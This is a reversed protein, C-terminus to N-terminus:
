RSVWITEKFIFLFCLENELQAILWHLNPLLNKGRIGDLLKTISHLTYAPSLFYRFELHRGNSPQNKVM